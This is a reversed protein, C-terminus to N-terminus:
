WTFNLAEWSADGLIVALVVLAVILCFLKANWQLMPCKRRPLQRMPVRNKDDADEASMVRIPSCGADRASDRTRTLPLGPRADGVLSAWHAELDIGVLRGGDDPRDAVKEAATAFRIGPPLGADVLREAGLLKIRSLGVRDRPVAAAGRPRLRAGLGV